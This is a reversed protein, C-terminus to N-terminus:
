YETHYGVCLAAKHLAAMLLGLVGFAGPTGSVIVHPAVRRIRQFLRRPSPFYLKQTPDGPMPTTWGPFKEAPDAPPGLLLVEQVRTELHDRLDDYYTGGGNRGPIADCLLVVRMSEPDPPLLFERSGPEPRQRLAPPRRNGEETKGMM